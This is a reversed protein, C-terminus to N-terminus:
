GLVYSAVDVWDKEANAVELDSAETHQDRKSDEHAQPHQSSLQSSRVQRWLANVRGEDADEASERARLKQPREFMNAFLRQQVEQEVSPAHAPEASEGAAKGCAQGVHPPPLQGDDPYERGCRRGKRGTVGDSADAAQQNTIVVAPRRVQRPADGERFAQRWCVHGHVRGLNVFCEREDRDRPQEQAPPPLTASIVDNEAGIQEHRTSRTEGDLEQTHVLADDGTKRNGM